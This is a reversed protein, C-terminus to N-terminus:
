FSFTAVWEVHPSHVFQDVVSLDKLEYGFGKLKEADSLFSETWCSVYVLTRPKMAEITELMRGLGSRPPDILWGDAQSVDSLAGPKYLDRRIGEINLGSAESSKAFGELAM